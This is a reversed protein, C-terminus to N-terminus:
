TGFFVLSLILEELLLLVAKSTHCLLVFAGLKGLPKGPIPLPLLLTERGASHQSCGKRGLPAALARCVPCSPVLWWVLPGPLKRGSWCGSILSFESWPEPYPGWSPILNSPTACPLLFSLGAESMGSHCCSIESQRMCLINVGLLFLGFSCLVSPSIESFCSMIERSEGCVREEPTM